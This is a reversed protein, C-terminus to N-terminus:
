EHTKKSIVYLLIYALIGGFFATFLQIYGMSYVFMKPVIANKFYIKAMVQLLLYKTVASLSIRFLYNQGKTKSFVKVLLYNGLWIFPLFYYLYVTQPGFLVGHAVAGLSPLILVPYLKKSTLKESAIFLLSNIITGTIWQPGSFVLPITFALVPLLIEAELLIIKKVSLEIPKNNM